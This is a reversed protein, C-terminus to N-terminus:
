LLNILHFVFVTICLSSILCLEGKELDELLLFSYIENETDYVVKFYKCLIVSYWTNQGDYFFLHEIRRYMLLEPDSRIQDLDLGDQCLISTTSLLTFLNQTLQHISFVQHNCSFQLVTKDHYTQNLVKKRFSIQLKLADFKAKKTSLLLLNEHVEAISTWLGIQQVKITLDEKEKLERAKKKQLERERKEMAEIRRAEIEERWMRFKKRYVATMTRAAQLLWEREEISKSHLWTSTKNHSFLLLSELAIYTANPKESLLRDLVAFNREPTVNTKPVSKTELVISPDTVGHFEDILLRQITLSISKFLTQLIEQVMSDEESSEFIHLAVEDTTNTYDEFLFVQNEIVGQSDNGWEDFKQKM